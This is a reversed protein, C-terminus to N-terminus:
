SLFPTILLKAGALTLVAALIRPIVSVPFRRSGGQAGILGGAFAALALWPLAAPLNPTNKWQGWLGAASNVFIFVAATASAERLGSWKKLILLPSLFIGGGVGTLGSLLGLAAGWTLAVPVPPKRLPSPDVAPQTLLRAASFLLVAGVVPRYYIEPLTLTGGWFAMPISTLAFPWLRAWAFYGAQYFKWGALASVLLNLVLATPKVAAPAMSFLIMVALYGSAGGHGVSSYLLGVGFIALGPLILWPFEWPIFASAFM